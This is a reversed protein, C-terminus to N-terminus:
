LNSNDIINQFKLLTKIFNNKENESIPKLIKEFTKDILSVAKIVASKGNTTLRLRYERQDTKSKTKTVIKKKILLNLQRSVSAETINWFNAITSQTANAKTKLAIIIKFQSFTLGLKKYLLRDSVRDMKITTTKLGILIESILPETM